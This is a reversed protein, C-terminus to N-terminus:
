IEVLPHFLNVSTSNLFCKKAIGMTGAGTLFVSPFTSQFNHMSTKGTHFNKKKLTNEGGGRDLRM